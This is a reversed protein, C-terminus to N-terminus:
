SWPTSRHPLGAHPWPNVGNFEDKILLWYCFACTRYRVGQCDILTIWGRRPCFECGGNAKACGWRM